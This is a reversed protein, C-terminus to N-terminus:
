GEKKVQASQVAAYLPQVKESAEAAERRKVSGDMTFLFTYAGALCGAVCHAFLIRLVTSDDIAVFGWANWGALELMLLGMALEGPSHTLYLKRM